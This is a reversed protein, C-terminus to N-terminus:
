FVQIILQKVDLVVIELSSSTIFLQKYYVPARSATGVHGRAYLFFIDFIEFLFLPQLVFCLKSFRKSTSAM